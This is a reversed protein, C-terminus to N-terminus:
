QITPGGSGDPGTFGLPFKGAKTRRKNFAQRREETVRPVIFEFEFLRELIEILWLAEEFEVEVDEGPITSDSPHAGRNGFDKIIYLDQALSPPLRNQAVLEKIAPYLDKKGIGFHQRILLQLCRRSATASANADIHLTRCAASFGKHFHDPVDFRLDVPPYILRWDPVQARVIFQRCMPCRFAAVEYFEGRDPANPDPVEAHFYHEPEENPNQFEFRCRPCSVSM